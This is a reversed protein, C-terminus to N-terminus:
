IVTDDYASGKPYDIPERRERKRPEPIDTAGDPITVSKLLPRYDYPKPPPGTYVPPDILTRKLFVIDLTGALAAECEEITLDGINCLRNLADAEDFPDDAEFATKGYIQAADFCPLQRPPHKAKLAAALKDLRTALTM